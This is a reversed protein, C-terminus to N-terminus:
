AAHVGQALLARYAELYEDVMRTATYHRLAHAYAREAYAQCLDQNGHLMALANGLSHADNKRFYFAAEGWIERLSPIENAVLACGSFAAELPSLGFPEYKSTAVYILARSLLQRM